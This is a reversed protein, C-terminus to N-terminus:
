WAFLKYESSLLTRNITLIEKNSEQTQINRKHIAAISMDTLRDNYRHDGLYTAFEPYNELTQEWQEQFYKKLKEDQYNPSKVNCSMFLSSLIIIYIIRM